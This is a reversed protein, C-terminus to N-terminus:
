AADQSGNDRRRENKGRWYQHITNTVRALWAKDKVLELIETAAFFKTGNEPPQGLPKLLRARVLVPIDHSQCNLIWAVQEYNLRAPPEDISSLFRLQHENM